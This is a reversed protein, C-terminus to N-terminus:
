GTSIMPCFCHSLTHTHWCAAQDVNNQQCPAVPRIQNHERGVVYVHWQLSEAWSWRDKRRRRIGWIHRVARFAFPTNFTLCIVTLAVGIKPGWSPARTLITMLVTLVMSTPRLHIIDHHQLSKTRWLCWRCWSAFSSRACRNLWVSWSVVTARLSTVDAEASSSFASIISRSLYNRVAWSKSWDSVVPVIHKTYQDYSRSSQPDSNWSDFWRTNTASLSSALSLLLFNPSSSLIASIRNLTLEWWDIFQAIEFKQKLVRNWGCVDHECMGVLQSDNIRGAARTQQRCERTHEDTM